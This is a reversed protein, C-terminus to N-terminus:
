QPRLVGHLQGPFSLTRFVAGPTPSRGTRSPYSRYRHFALPQLSYYYKASCSLTPCAHLPLHAVHHSNLALCSSFWVGMNNNPFAVSDSLKSYCTQYGSSSFTMSRRSKYMIWGQFVCLLDTVFTFLLSIPPWPGKGSIQCYCKQNCNVRLCWPPLLVSGRVPSFGHM